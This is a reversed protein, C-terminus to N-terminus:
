NSIKLYWCIFLIDTKRLRTSTELRDQALFPAHSCLQLSTILRMSYGM